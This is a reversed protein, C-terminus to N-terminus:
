KGVKEVIIKNNRDVVKLNYYINKKEYRNKNETFYDLARNREKTEFITKGLNIVKFMIM